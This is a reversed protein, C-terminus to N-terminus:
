FSTTLIQYLFHRYVRVNHCINEHFDSHHFGYLKLITFSNTVLIEVSGVIHVFNPTIIRFMISNLALKTFIPVSPRVKRITTLSIINEHKSSDRTNRCYLVAKHFGNGIDRVVGYHLRELTRWGRHWFRLSLRWLRYSYSNRKILSLQLFSYIIFSFTKYNVENFIETNRLLSCTRGDTVIRPYSSKRKYLNAFLKRLFRNGRNEPTSLDICVPYNKAATNCFVSRTHMSKNNANLFAHTVLSTPHMWYKISSRFLLTIFQLHICAYVHVYINVYMVEYAYMCVCVCVHM